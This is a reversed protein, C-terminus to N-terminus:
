TAYSKGCTGRRDHDCTKSRPCPRKAMSRISRISVYVGASRRSGHSAIACGKKSWNRSGEVCRRSRRKGGRNSKESSSSPRFEESLSLILGNVRAVCFIEDGAGDRPPESEDGAEDRPPEGRRATLCDDSPRFPADGDTNDGRSGPFCWVWSTHYTYLNKIAGM